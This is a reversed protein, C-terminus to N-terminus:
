KANSAPVEDFPTHFVWYTRNANSSLTNNADRLAQWVQRDQYNVFLDMHSFRALAFHWSPGDKTESAELLLFVEPDTGVSCVFALLAGDVVDPDTSEYRYLPQPLLRLETREGRSSVSYASFDRCFARMQRMRGSPSMAPTPADPLLQRKLGAKPKWSDSDKGTSALVVPSLSHLEHVISVKGNTGPNRWFCALADANGQHTWVYVSGYTGGFPGSRAWTYTPRSLLTLGDRDSERALQYGSALRDFAQRWQARMAAEAEEARAELGVGLLWAATVLIIKWKM